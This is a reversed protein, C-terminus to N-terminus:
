FVSKAESKYRRYSKVDALLSKIQSYETGMSIMLHAIPKTLNYWVIAGVSVSYKSAFLAKIEGIGDILSM